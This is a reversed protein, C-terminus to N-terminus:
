AEFFLTWLIKVEGYFFAFCFLGWLLLKFTEFWDEEWEGRFISIVEPTFWFRLSYFFDNWSKWFLKGIFFSIPIHLIILVVWLWDPLSMEAFM